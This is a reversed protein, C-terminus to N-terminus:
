LYKEILAEAFDPKRWLESLTDDITYSAHWGFLKAIRSNDAALVPRDVKRVREEAQRIGFDIGSIRRLKEVIDIVSYTQSTGLNVICTEGAEVAKGVAAARFGAAADRVDIYDRRPSLNGLEIVKRGAKLQAVLEPLLHPNTEGPGIVNFLRVVVAELGRKMAIARVYHEGHLKSFGYIDSPGVESSAEQHPQEEPKYVAGSSAFVFRSAEPCALLVNLTGLVNTSVALAPSSECEPIYHLAALHVVVHPKFDAMLAPVRVPDRIDIEELRLATREAADFQWEGYRLADLVCVACSERLMRTLYRGVYGNGGTILVRTESM